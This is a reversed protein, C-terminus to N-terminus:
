TGLGLLVQVAQDEQVVQLVEAQEEVVLTQVKLLLLVEQVLDEMVLDEVLMRLVGFQKTQEEEEQVEAVLVLVTDLVELVELVEAEELEMTHVVVGALIHEGLIELDELQQDQSIQQDLLVVVLDVLVVLAKDVQLVEV